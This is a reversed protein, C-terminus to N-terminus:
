FFLVVRAFVSLSIIKSFVNRWLALGSINFFYRRSVEVLEQTLEYKSHSCLLSFVILRCRESFRPIRKKKSFTSFVRYTLISKLFFSQFVLFTTQVTLNIISRRSLGGHQIFSLYFEYWILKLSSSKLEVSLIILCYNRKM